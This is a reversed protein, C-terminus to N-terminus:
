PKQKIRDVEAEAEMVTLYRIFSKPNMRDPDLGTSRIFGLKIQEATPPKGTFLNM